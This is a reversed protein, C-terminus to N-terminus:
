KRIAYILEDELVGWKEINQKIHAEKEFGLKDLVRQSAKNSGYPRAFIRNIELEQFAWDNMEKVARTVIGKNWYEEAVWYGLEANNKMIDDQQHIGVAGVFQNDVTIAKIYSSNEAKCFAIFQKGAEITYPHPFRGTMYRAIKKNNAHKVLNDLDYDEIWRLKFEVM